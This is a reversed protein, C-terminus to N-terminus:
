RFRCLLCCCLGPRKPGKSRRDFLCIGSSVVAVITSARAVAVSARPGPGSALASAARPANRPSRARLPSALAAASKGFTTAVAAAAGITAAIAGAAGTTGVPGFTAATVGAAGALAANAPSGAGDPCIIVDVGSATGFLSAATASWCCGDAAHDDGGASANGAASGILPGTGSGRRRGCRRAMAGVLMACLAAM